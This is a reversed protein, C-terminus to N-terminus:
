FKKGTAKAIKRVWTLAAPLQEMTLARLRSAGTQRLMEASVTKPSGGEGILMHLQANLKAREIRGIEPDFWAYPDYGLPSEEM